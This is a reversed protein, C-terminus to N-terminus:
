NILGNLWTGFYNVRCLQRLYFLWNETENLQVPYHRDLYTQLISVTVPGYMVCTFAFASFLLVNFFTNFVGMIKINNVM